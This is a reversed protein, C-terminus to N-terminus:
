RFNTLMQKSCEKWSKYDRYDKLRCNEFLYMEVENKPQYGYEFGKKINDYHNNIIRNAEIRMEKIADAREQSKSPNVSSFAYFDKLMYNSLMNDLEIIEPLTYGEKTNTELKNKLGEQIANEILFNKM